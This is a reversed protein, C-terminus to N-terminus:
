YETNVPVCAQSQTPCLELKCHLYIESTAGSFEFMDFSLVSSTGRGNGQMRVTDDAPNPCGKIILNYRLNDDPSPKNTAWCSDTVMTVMNADLGGAALQLWIKQNLRVETNPGVPQLLGADTFANMTLTYNWVGSVIQQVVSSDRIRFSVSKVEPQTYLCSFDIHVQDSRTIISGSSNSKLMITNKYIIQSSNKVVETGCPTSSNFSFTVLHSQNDMHGKCSPDNLHLTSFDIGKDDLLCGALTVSASGQSCVTPDGLSQTARYKSAFLGRCFCRSSGLEDGCFEHDSCPQQCLPPPSCGAASMWDVLTVNAELSCAKAYAELFQCDVGDESPYRCLTHTCASIYPEPDTHNHCASFPPQRMLNCHDTSRNCNITVNVLDQYQTECGSPSYSSSKEASPTTTSNSIMPNGCLGELAEAFGTVHASNGDFCVTVNSSLIKATVGTQDTSLEVGHHQQATSGLVLAKEGARVRGGQELYMTVGPLSLILHDLLPVDTRRRERFRAILNFSASGEPKMLSYACRDQVSHVAGSVGIVTSGTVTCMVPIPTCINNGTCEEMPGCKDVQKVNGSFACISSTCTEPNSLKSGGKVAVGSIRCGPLGQFKDSKSFTDITGQTSEASLKTLGDVPSFYLVPIDFLKIDMLRSTSTSPSFTISCTYPSTIYQLQNSVDVNLNYTIEILVSQVGFSSTPKLCDESVVGNEIFCVSFTPKLTVKVAKYTKGYYTVTCNSHNVITDDGDFSIKESEILDVQSAAVALLLLLAPKM